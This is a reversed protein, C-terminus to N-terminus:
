FTPIKDSKCAALTSATEVVNDGAARAESLTYVRAEVRNDSPGSQTGSVRRVYSADRIAAYQVAVCDSYRPLDRAPDGDAIATRVEFLEQDLLRTEAGLYRAEKREVPSCASLLLLPAAFAIMVFSLLPLSLSTM